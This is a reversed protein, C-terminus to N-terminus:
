QFVVLRPCCVVTPSTPQPNDSADAILTFLEWVWGACNGLPNPFDASPLDSFYICSTTFSLPLVRFVNERNHELYRHCHPPSPPRPQPPPPSPSTQLMAWLLKYLSFSRRTQSLDAHERGDRTQYSVNPQKANVSRM